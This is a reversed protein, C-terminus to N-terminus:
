RSFKQWLKKRYIFVIALLIIIAFPYAKEYWKKDGSPDFKVVRENGAKDIAKIYINKNLKQAKLLYPSDAQIYRDFFGERIEYHDIGSIKDVTSFVVFYRGEFIAEDRGVNPSFIEPPELDVLEESKHSGDGAVINLSAERTSLSIKTGQGDNKLIKLDQFYFQTTGTNKGEFVVNFITNKGSFGGPTIGSFIIGGEGELKPKEVWFNVVSGGERVEKLNLIKSDFIMRGEVANVTESANIEVKLVFEEGTSIEKKNLSFYAESAFATNASFVIILILVKIIKKM